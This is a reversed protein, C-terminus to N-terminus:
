LCEIRIMPRLRMFLALDCCEIWFGFGFALDGLLFRSGDNVPERETMEVLIKKQLLNQLLFSLPYVM